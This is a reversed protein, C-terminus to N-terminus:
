SCFESHDRGRCSCWPKQLQFRAKQAAFHNSSSTHPAPSASTRTRAATGEISPRRDFIISCVLVPCSPSHCACLPTWFPNTTTVADSPGTSPQPFGGLCWPSARGRRFVQAEGAPARRGRATVALAQRSMFLPRPWDWRELPGWGFDWCGM